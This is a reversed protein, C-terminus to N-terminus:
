SPIAIPFIAFNSASFFSDKIRTSTSVGRDGTTFVVIHNALGISPHCTYGTTLNSILVLSDNVFGELMNKNITFYLFQIFIHYRFQIFSYVIPM